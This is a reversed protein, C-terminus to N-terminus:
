IHAGAADGLWLKLHEQERGVVRPAAAVTLDRAEIAHERASATM